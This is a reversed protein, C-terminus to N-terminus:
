VFTVIMFMNGQLAETVADELESDATLNDDGSCLSVDVCSNSEISVDVCSNSEEIHNFDEEM